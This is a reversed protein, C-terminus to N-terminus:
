KQCTQLEEVVREIDDDSLGTGCPINMTIERLRYANEIRYSQADRYPKQMHNLYWLPRVEIGKKRLQNLLIDRSIGYARKDVQVAYMWYNNKAYDPVPAMRLGKICDIERKYRAYNISKAEIFKGLCEMQAIGLAAQINSLRFNYGIENHISHLEDDKAQTTLYRAQKGWKVDNTVLMGGGGTTVIKNGNFSYCGVDGLTGTHRGKFTGNLYYSGLSETADEVIKINREKCKPVLKELNAANGFVHVPVICSIRRKTKKNYTFGKRYITQTELFELTKEVDINYFDDCDMFVPEAQLYKVANIPAIFTVTPVLVEDKAEVGVVQLAVQLAATGSICAVGVHAGTAACIKEELLNVYKGASSVWNTDLCDKVYKWENGQVLPASLELMSSM